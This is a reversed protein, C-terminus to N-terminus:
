GLNGLVVRVRMGPNVSFFETTYPSFGSVSMFLPVSVDGGIHLWPLITYATGAHLELLGFRGKLTNLHNRMDTNGFASYEGIDVQAISATTHGAGLYGGLTLDWKPSSFTQELLLGLWDTEAKLVTISDGGFEESAFERSGSMGGVGIRVGKGIGGYAMGGSMLYPEFGFRSFGFQRDRLAPHRKILTELPHTGVAYVGLGFGFSGGYGKRRMQTIRSRFDFTTEKVTGSRLVFITDDNERVVVARTSDGNQEIVASIARVSDADAGASRASISGSDEPAQGSQGNAAIGPVSWLIAAILGTCARLTM